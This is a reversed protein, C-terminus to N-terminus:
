RRTFRGIPGTAIDARRAKRTVTWAYVGAAAAVMFSLVGFDVAYALVAWVAVLVLLATRTSGHVNIRALYTRRTWADAALGNGTQVVDNWWEDARIHQDHTFAPHKGIYSLNAKIAEREARTTDFTYGPRAERDAPTVTM